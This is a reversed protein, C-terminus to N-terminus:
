LFRQRCWMATRGTGGTLMLSEAGYKNRIGDLKGAIEDLAQEWTITEWKNEGREGVRKLPFRVRDPHYIYEKAGALRPCAKTRPLITHVRPDTPDEEIRTLRGNESHVAVRCQSHCWRCIARTIEEAM